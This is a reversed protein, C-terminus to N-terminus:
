ECRRLNVAVRAVRQALFAVATLEGRHDLAPPGAPPGRVRRQKPHRRQRCAAAFSVPVVHRPNPPTLRGVEPHEWGRREGEREERLDVVEWVRPCAHSILGPCPIRVM